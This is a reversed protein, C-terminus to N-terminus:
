FLNALQNVASQVTGGPTAGVQIPKGQFSGGRVGM